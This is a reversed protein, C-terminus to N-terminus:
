RGPLERTSKATSSEAPDAAVEDHEERTGQPVESAELRPKTTAGEARLDADVADLASSSSTSPLRRARAPALAVGRSRPELVDDDRAGLNVSDGVVYLPRRKVEEYIRGVYEGLMGIMVLQVSSLLSAVVVITTWGPIVNDLFYHAVTAWIAIGIAVLSIFLGVYTAFRLPVISFSTVGDVAFRVMKALPYKTKGAFRPSRHFVVSAQKFGLWSVMGRVFRHSERLARLTVVVRRSMLRFDGADLPAEIPILSAFLRYFLRASLIKFLSDGARSARTGYVVDFGEDWKRLMEVIVEPPDQLDADMIVTAEGRAYDIGATTAVQHGFNRSLSLLRFRGDERAAGELLEFSGDKSGDDVFIVEATVDIQQLLAMLRSLLEPIVAAENFVPIVISLTPRSGTARSHALPDGSTRETGTDMSSAQIETTM